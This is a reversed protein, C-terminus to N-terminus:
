AEEEEEEGCETCRGTEEELDGGCEPCCDYLDGLEKRAEGESKFPGYWDTCDMYGPASLRVWIGTQTTIRAGPIEAKVQARSFCDAPWYTTEGQAEALYMKGEYIEPEMFAM